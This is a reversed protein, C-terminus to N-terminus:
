NKYSLIVAIRSTNELSIIKIVHIIDIYLGLLAAVVHISLTFLIAEYKQQMLIGNFLQM